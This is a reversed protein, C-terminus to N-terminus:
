KLIGSFGQQRRIEYMLIASAVSVNLSDIHGGQPISVLSDCRERVLKGLGKGESGMVLVLPRCADFRHMPVGEMDAGIIWFGEDRATELSRVLNTCSAAAVWADAGASTRTVDDGLRASRRQPLLLGDCEMLDATRMIAGLNGQDTISDLALFFPFGPSRPGDKGSSLMEEWSLGTKQPAEMLLLAGKHGPSLRDLDKAGTREVRVGWKRASEMAERVRASIEPGVLLRCAGPDKRMYEDMSHFAPIIRM